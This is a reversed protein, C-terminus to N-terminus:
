QPLMIKSAVFDCAVCAADVSKLCSLSLCLLFHLFLARVRTPFLQTNHSANHPDWAANLPLMDAKLLSTPFPLNLYPIYLRHIRIGFFRDDLQGVVTTYKLWDSVVEYLICNSTGVTEYSHSKRLTLLMSVKRNHALRMFLTPNSFPYAPTGPDNAATTCFDIPTLASNM